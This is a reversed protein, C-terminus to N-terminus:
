VGQDTGEGEIEQTEADVTPTSSRAHNVDKIEVNGALIDLQVIAEPTEKDMELTRRMVRDATELDKMTKIKPINAQSVAKSLKEHLINQHEKQLDHLNDAVSCVDSIATECQAPSIEGRMQQARLSNVRERLKRRISQPSPWDERSARCRITGAPVGYRDALERSTEGVLWGEQILHWPIKRKAKKPM